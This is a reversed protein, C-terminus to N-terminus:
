IRGLYHLVSLITAIIGILVVGGQVKDVHSKIPVIVTELQKTRRIHEELVVHQAALTVDIRSLHDSLGDIKLEIKDLQGEKM